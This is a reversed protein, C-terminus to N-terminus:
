EACKHQKNGTHIREQQILTSSQSFSKGHVLCRFPKEGTHIRQHRALTSHKNFSKGCETCTYPRERRHIKQHRILTSSLTFGKRCELSKCPKEGMHIGQHQSLKSNQLFSKGCETCKYPKEGMHLKQHTILNSRLCFSKGCGICTNLSEGQAIISKHGWLGREHHVSKDQNKGVSNGEKRELRGQRESIKGCEPNRAIDGAPRGALTWHPETKEPDEQQPTAEETINRDDATCNGRFIERKKSVQLTLGGSKEGQEVQSIVDPKSIMFGLLLKTDCDEQM